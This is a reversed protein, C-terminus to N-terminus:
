RDNGSSAIVITIRPASLSSLAVVSHLECSFVGLKRKRRCLQCLRAQEHGSGTAFSGLRVDGCDLSGSRTIHSRAIGKSSATLIRPIM